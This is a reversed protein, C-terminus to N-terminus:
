SSLALEPLVLLDVGEADARRALDLIGAANSAVDGVSAVPTGAGVRVFGHRHISRFPAAASMLPGRDDFTAEGM